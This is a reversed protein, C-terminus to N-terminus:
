YERVFSLIEKLEDLTLNKLEGMINEMLRNKESARGCEEIFEEITGSHGNELWARYGALTPSYLVENPIPM